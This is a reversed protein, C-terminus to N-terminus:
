ERVSKPLADGAGYSAVHNHEEIVDAAGDLLFQSPGTSPADENRVTLGGTSLENALLVSGYGSTPVVFMSRGTNEGNNFAAVRLGSPAVVAAESNQIFSGMIVNHSFGTRIGAGGNRSMNPAINFVNSMISGDASIALMGDKTMNEAHLNFPAFEFVAGEFVFGYEAYSTYINHLTAKYYASPDGGLCRIRLCAGAQGGRGRDQWWGGGYLQFNTFVFGRNAAGVIGEVRVMDHGAPGAWDIQAWSGDIGWVSGDHQAQRLVLTKDAKIKTGPALTQVFRNAAAADALVQLEDMTRPHPLSGGVQTPPPELPPPEAPQESAKVTLRGPSIRTWTRVDFIEVVADDPWQMADWGKGADDVVAQGTEANVLKFTAM